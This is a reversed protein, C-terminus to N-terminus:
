ALASETTVPGNHWRQTFPHTFSSERESLGHDGTTWFCGYHMAPEGPRRLDTGTYFSYIVLSLQPTSQTPESALHVGPSLRLISVLSREMNEPLERCKLHTLSDCSLSSVTQLIVASHVSLTQLIVASHVSLTQLIM